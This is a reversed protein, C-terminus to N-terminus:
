VFRLLRSLQASPLVLYLFVSLSNRCQSELPHLSQPPSSFHIQISTCIRLLFVRKRYKLQSM